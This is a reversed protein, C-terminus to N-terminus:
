SNRPILPSKIGKNILETILRLQLIRVLQSSLGYAGTAKHADPSTILSSIIIKLTLQV